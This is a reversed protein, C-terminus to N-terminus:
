GIRLRAKMGQLSSIALPVSDGPQFRGKGAIYNGFRIASPRSQRASLRAPPCSPLPLWVTPPDSARIRHRVLRFWASPRLTHPPPPLGVITLDLASSRLMRDIISVSDLRYSVIRYSIVSEFLSSHFSSPTHPWPWLPACSRSLLGSALANRKNLLVVATLCM